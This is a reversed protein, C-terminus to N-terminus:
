PTPDACLLNGDVDIGYVWEGSPCTFAFVGGLRETTPPAVKFWIYTGSPSFPEVIGTVSSDSIESLESVTINHVEGTISSVDSGENLESVTIQRTFVFLHSDSGENLESVTINHVTGANIVSSSDSGNNQESVTIFITKTVTHSDAGNNQESVNINHTTATAEKINFVFSAYGDSTWTGFIPDAPNGVSAQNLSAVVQGVGGTGGSNGSTGIETWGTGSVTDADNVVNADVAVMGLFLTNTVTSASSIPNATTGAGTLGAGTVDIM